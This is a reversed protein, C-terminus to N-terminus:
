GRPSASSYLFSRHLKRQFDSASHSNAMLFPQKQAFVFLVVFSFVSLVTKGTLLVLHRYVSLVLKKMPIKVRARRAAMARIWVCIGRPATSIHHWHFMEDSSTPASDAMFMGLISSAKPSIRAADLRTSYSAFFSLFLYICFYRFVPDTPLDVSRRNCLFFHFPM